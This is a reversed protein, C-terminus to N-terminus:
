AQLGKLFEEAQEISSMFNSEENMGGEDESDARNHMYDHLQALLNLVDSMDYNVSHNYPGIELENLLGAVKMLEKRENVLQKAKM